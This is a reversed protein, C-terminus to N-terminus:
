ISTTNARTKLSVFFRYLSETNLTRVSLFVSASRDQWLYNTYSMVTRRASALTEVPYSLLPSLIQLQYLLTKTETIRQNFKNAHPPGAITHKHAAYKLEPWRAPLFSFGTAHNVLTPSWYRHAHTPVLLNSVAEKCAKRLSLCTKMSVKCCGELASRKSVNPYFISGSQCSREILGNKKSGLCTKIM